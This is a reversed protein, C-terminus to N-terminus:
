RNLGGLPQFDSPEAAFGHNLVPQNWDISPVDEVPMGSNTNNAQWLPM